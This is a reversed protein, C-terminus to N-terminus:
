WKHFQCTTKMLAKTTQQPNVYEIYTRINRMTMTEDDTEEDRTFNQRTM